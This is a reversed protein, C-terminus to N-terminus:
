CMDAISCGAFIAEPVHLHDMLALIDAALQAM